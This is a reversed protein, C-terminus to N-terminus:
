AGTVVTSNNSNQEDVVNSISTSSTTMHVLDPDVLAELVKEINVVKQELQAINETLTSVGSENMEDVLSQLNTLASSDSDTIGITANVQAALAEVKQDVSGTVSADGLLIDLDSRNAVIRDDMGKLGSIDLSTIDKFMFGYIEDLKKADMRNKNVNISQALSQVQEGNSNTFQKSPDYSLDINAKNIDVLAQLEDKAVKVANKFSGEANEGGSIQDIRQREITLSNNDAKTNTLQGISAFHNDLQEQVGLPKNLIYLDKNFSFKTGDLWPSDSAGLVSFSVVKTAAHQKIQFSNNGGTVVGASDMDVDWINLQNKKWKQLLGHTSSLQYSSSM